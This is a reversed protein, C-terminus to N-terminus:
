APSVQSQAHGEIVATRPQGPYNNLEIAGILRQQRSLFPGSPVAWGGLREESSDKRM